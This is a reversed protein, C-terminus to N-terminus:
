RIPENHANGPRVCLTGFTVRVWAGKRGTPDNGLELTGGNAEILYRTLWLGVGLGRKTLTRVPLRGQHTLIDPSFGPGEDRVKITVTSDEDGKKQVDVWINRGEYSYQYANTLLNRLAFSVQLPDAEIDVSEGQPWTRHLHMARKSFKLAVDSAVDRVRAVVDFPRRKPAGPLATIGQVLSLQNALSELTDTLESIAAKERAAAGQGLDTAVIKLASRVHGALEHHVLLVAASVQDLAASERLRHEYAALREIVQRAALLYAIYGAFIELLIIDQASLVGASAGGACVTGLVDSGLAIGPATLPVAIEMVSQPGALFPVYNPNQAGDTCFYTRRNLFAHANIGRLDSVGLVMEEPVDAASRGVSSLPILCGTEDRYQMVYVWDARLVGRCASLVRTLSESLSREPDGEMLGLHLDSAASLFRWHQLLSALERSTEEAAEEEASSFPPEDQSRNLALLAQRAGMATVLPILLLNCQHRTTSPSPLGGQKPLLSAIPEGRLSRIPRGHALVDSASSTIEGLADDCTHGTRQVVAAQPGSTEILTGGAASFVTVIRQVVEKQLLERDPTVKDIGHPDPRWAIAESELLATHVAATLDYRQKNVEAELVTGLFAGLFSMLEVVVDGPVVPTDAILELVGVVGGPSVMPVALVAEITKGPVIERYPTEPASASALQASYDTLILPRRTDAVTGAIGAQKSTGMLLSMQLAQAPPIHAAALVFLRQRRHDCSWAAAYPYPTWITLDGLIDGLSSSLPCARALLSVYERARKWIEPDTM